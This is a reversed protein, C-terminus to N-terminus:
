FFPFGTPMDKMCFANINVRVLPFSSHVTNIYCGFLWEATEANPLEYPDIFVDTAIDSSDLYFSTDTTHKWTGQPPVQQVNSTREPITGPPTRKADRDPNQIIYPPICPEAKINQLQRQVNLLWQVESAQGVYGTERSKHSRTLDEFLNDLSQNSGISGSVLAEGYKPARRPKRHPLQNRKGLTIM